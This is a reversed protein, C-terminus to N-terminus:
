KRSPVLLKEGNTAIVDRYWYGSDKITRKQTKYDVYVLGFRESYGSAWEYNDLLSWHFYGKVPVGSQAARRLELLDRAFELRYGDRAGEELPAGPDRSTVFLETAGMSLLKERGQALVEDLEEPRCQEVM